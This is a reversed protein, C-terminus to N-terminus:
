RLLERIAEFNARYRGDTEKNIEKSLMGIIIGAADMRARAMVLKNQVEHLSKLNTPCIAEHSLDTRRTSMSILDERMMRIVSSKLFKDVPVLNNIMDHLEGCCRFKNGYLCSHETGCTPCIVRTAPDPTM